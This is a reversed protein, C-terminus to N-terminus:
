LDDQAAFDGPPKPQVVPEANCIEVPCANGLMEWIYSTLTVPGGYLGVGKSCFGDGPQDLCLDEKILQENPWPWLPESSEVDFNAEGWM